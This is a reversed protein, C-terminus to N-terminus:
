NARTREARAVFATIMAALEAPRELVAAHGAGELVQFGAGPIAAALARCRARPVFGDEGAAVVLTPCRVATLEHQLSFNEAADLLGILGEFFADPLAAIQRRRELRETRHAAVYAKSYVVPELADSLHGRDGGALSDVCAQRWRAVEVAMEDTFGDASAISVLSRVREPQRAALLVGVAGGFSTGVVHVCDAGVTDLVEVVDPVHEAVGRPPPGPSLLQGRLDCRIVRHAPRLGAAVPEWSIASMAIGNLLLLPPGDAAGDVLHFLAM